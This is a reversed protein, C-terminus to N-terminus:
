TRCSIDEPSFHLDNLVSYFPLLRVQSPRSCRYPRERSRWCRPAEAFSYSVLKPPPPSRPLPFIAATYTHTQTKTDCATFDHTSEREISCSRDMSNGFLRGEGGGLAGHAAYTVVTPLIHRAVARGTVEAQFHPVAPKLLFFTFSKM